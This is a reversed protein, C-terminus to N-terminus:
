SYQVTYYRMRMSTLVQGSGKRHVAIRQTGPDVLDITVGLLEPACAGTSVYFALLARDRDCGAVAFLADFLRDSLARPIRESVKQRLPARRGPDHRRM